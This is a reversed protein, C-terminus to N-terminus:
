ELCTEPVQLVDGPRLVDNPSKGSLKRIQDAWYNQDRFGKIPCNEAHDWYTDYVQATVPGTNGIYDTQMDGGRSGLYAVGVGLLAFPVLWAAPHLGRRPQRRSHSLEMQQRYGEFSM